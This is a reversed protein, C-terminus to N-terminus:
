GRKHGLISLQDLRTYSRLRTGQMTRPRSHQWEWWVQWKWDARASREVAEANRWSLGQSIRTRELERKKRTARLKWHNGPWAPIGPLSSTSESALVSDSKREGICGAWWDRNRMPLFVYTRKRVLLLSCPFCNTPLIVM